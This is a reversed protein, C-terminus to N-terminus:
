RRDTSTHACIHACLEFSVCAHWSFLLFFRCWVSDSTACAECVCARARVCTRLTARYGPAYRVLDTEFFPLFRVCFRYSGVLRPPGSPYFRFFFRPSWDEHPSPHQTCTFAACFTLNVHHRAENLLLAGEKARAHAKKEREGRWGPTLLPAFPIVCLGVSNKKEHNDKFRPRPPNQKM